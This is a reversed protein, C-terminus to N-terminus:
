ISFTLNRASIMRSYPWRKIGLLMWPVIHENQLKSFIPVTDANMPSYPWRKIWPVIDANLPLLKFINSFHQNQATKTLILAYKAAIPLWKLGMNQNQASKNLIVAMKCKKKYFVKKSETTVWRIHSTSVWNKNHRWSYYSLLHSYFHFNRAVWVNRELCWNEKFIFLFFYSYNLM